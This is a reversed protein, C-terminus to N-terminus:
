NISFWGLSWHLFYCIILILNVTNSYIVDFSNSEKMRAIIFFIFSSLLSGIVWNDLKTNPFSIFRLISVVVILLLMFLFIATWNKKSKTM